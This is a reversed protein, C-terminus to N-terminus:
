PKRRVRAPPLRPPSDDRRAWQEQASVFAVGGVLGAFLSIMGVVVALALGSVLAAIVPPAFVAIAMAAVIRGPPTRRYQTLERPEDDM